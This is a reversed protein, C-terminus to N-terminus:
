QITRKLGHGLLGEGHADPHDDEEGDDKVQHRNLSFVFLLM